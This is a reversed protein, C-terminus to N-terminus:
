NTAAVRGNGGAAGGAQIGHGPHRAEAASLSNVATLEFIPVPQAKGKLMVKGHQQFQGLHQIRRKVNASVIIRSDSAQAMLRAALNVQDGMVTYEQRWSSGVFGAFVYGFSIGIRQTLSLSALGTQEPLTDCLHPMAAMMSLAARAAREADDEHAIPAGFTVLLKEGQDYLDIKNIVGGFQAVATSMELFYPNLAQVILREQGPGLRDVLASLGDINAFLTAVLRHEGQLDTARRDTVLRPLLGAPLYPVFADLLTVMRWVSAMEPALPYHSEFPIQPESIDPLYGSEVILYHRNEPVSVATCMLLPDVLDYTDRDLVLQGAQAASEITATENVDAGFLAYEMNQADGLQAAFFRGHHIGVSMRLPFPGLSTATHAFQDMAAQMKMGAMVARTSSNPQAPVSFPNQDLGFPAFQDLDVVKEEFLGLLADGGFRILQGNYLKLIDLMADFYRNVIATVEEAGERGIHSLKESMATFGSIDAFLLTGTVFRGNPHGPTPNESVWEVLSAPLHSTTTEFLQALFTLCESILGPSLNDFHSVIKKYTAPPLYKQFQEPQRLPRKDAEAGFEMKTLRKGNVM